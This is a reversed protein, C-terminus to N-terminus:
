GTVCIAEGKFDEPEYPFKTRVEDWVVVTFVHNPYAQGLNLVDTTWETLPM